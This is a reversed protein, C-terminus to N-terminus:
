AASTVRTVDVLYTERLQRVVAAADLDPTLSDDFVELSYPYALEARYGQTFQLIRGWLQVQGVVVPMSLSRATSRAWAVAADRTAMAYIGCGCSLDPRLHEPCRSVLPELPPWYADHVCSRLFYESRPTTAPEFVGVRWARWAQIAEDHVRRRSGPPSM